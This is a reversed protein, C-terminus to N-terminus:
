YIGDFKGENFNTVLDNYKQQPTDKVDNFFRETDKIPQADQQIASYTEKSVEKWEPGNNGLLSVVHKYPSNSEEATYFSKMSDASGMREALFVQSYNYNPDLDPNAKWFSDDNNKYSMQKMIFDSRAEGVPNINRLNNVQEFQQVARIWIAREGELAGLAQMRNEFTGGQNKPLRNLTDLLNDKLKDFDINPNQPSYPLNIKM